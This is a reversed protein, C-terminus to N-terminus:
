VNYRLVTGPYTRAEMEPSTNREPVEPQSSAKAKDRRKINLWRGNRDAQLAFRGEEDPGWRTKPANKLPSRPVNAVSWPSPAAAATKSTVGAFCIGGANGVHKWRRSSQKKNVVRTRMGVKEGIIM